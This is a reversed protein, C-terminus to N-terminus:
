CLLMDKDSRGGQIAERLIQAAEDLICPTHLRNRHHCQRARTPLRARTAWLAAGSSGHEAEGGEIAPFGPSSAGSSRPATM